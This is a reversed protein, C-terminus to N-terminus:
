VAKAARLAEIQADTYGAEHLVEETHEGWGPAATRVAAPTRELTVPQSIVRVTPGESSVVENVVGLAKVQPDEFMQPVTYVPGCPVGADNLM